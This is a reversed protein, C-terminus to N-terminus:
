KGISPRDAKEIVNELEKADFLFPALFDRAIKRKENDGATNWRKSKRMLVIAQDRRDPRNKLLFWDRWRGDPDDEMLLDRVQMCINAVVPSGAVLENEPETHFKAELLAKHLNLLDSDDLKLEYTKM